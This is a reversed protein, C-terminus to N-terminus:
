IAKRRIKKLHNRKFAQYDEGFVKIDTATLEKDHYKLDTLELTCLYDVAQFLRYEQASAMRYLIADKSLMYDIAGHLASTVMHQGNDYYIKVKDFSQFYDLKDTLFVVLDRKFRAIFKEATSVESRKYSFAKYTCPIGRVFGEFAGLMKKRDEMDMGEYDDNGNMLPSAHLPLNPLDANRLCEEYSAINEAISDDQDHMLLTVLCYRSHGGQSGSEDVFISLERM